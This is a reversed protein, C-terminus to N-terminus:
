PCTHRMATAAPWCWELRHPEASGARALVLLPLPRPGPTQLHRRYLDLLLLYRELTWGPGPQDQARWFRRLARSCAERGFEEWCREQALEATLGQRRLERFRVLEPAEPSADPPLVQALRRVPVVELRLWCRELLLVPLEGHWLKERQQQALLRDLRQRLRPTELASSQLANDAM